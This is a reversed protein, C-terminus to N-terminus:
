LGGNEIVKKYYMELTYPVYRIYRMNYGALQGIFENVDKNPLSATLDTM